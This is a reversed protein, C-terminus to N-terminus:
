RRFHFAKREPQPEGADQKQLAERRAQRAYEIGDATWGDRRIRLHVGRNLETFPFCYFDAQALRERIRRCHAYAAHSSTEGPNNRLGELFIRADPDGRWHYDELEAELLEPRDQGPGVSMPNIEGDVAIWHASWVCRVGRPMHDFVGPLSGDLSTWGSAAVLKEFTNIMSAGYGM